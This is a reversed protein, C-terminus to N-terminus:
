RANRWIAAGGHDVLAADSHAAAEGGLVSQQGVAAFAAIHHTGVLGEGHRKLGHGFEADIGGGVGGFIPSGAAANFM